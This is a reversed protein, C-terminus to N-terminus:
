EQHKMETDPSSGEMSPQPLGASYAYPNSM